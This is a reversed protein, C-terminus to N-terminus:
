WWRDVENGRSSNWQNEESGLMAGNMRLNLARRRKRLNFGQLRESSTRLAVLGEDGEVVHVVALGQGLGPLDAGFHGRVELLALPEFVKAPSEPM